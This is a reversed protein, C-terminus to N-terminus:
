PWTVGRTVLPLMVIKGELPCAHIDPTAALHIHLDYVAERFALTETVTYPVAISIRGLAADITLRPSAGETSLELESPGEVTRRIHMYAIYGTLDLPTKDDNQLEVNAEWDDGQKVTFDHKGPIM